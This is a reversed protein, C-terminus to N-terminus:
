NDDGGFVARISEAVNEPDNHTAYTVSQGEKFATIKFQYGAEFAKMGREVLVEPSRVVIPTLWGDESDSTFEYIPSSM